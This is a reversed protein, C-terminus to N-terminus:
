EKQKPQEVDIMKVESIIEAKLMEIGGLLQLPKEYAYDTICSGDQTLAVVAVGCVQGRRADRLMARLTSVIESRNEAVRTKLRVPKVM